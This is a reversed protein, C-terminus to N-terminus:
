NVMMKRIIKLESVIEDNGSFMKILGDVYERPSHEIAGPLWRFLKQLLGDPPLDLSKGVDMGATEKDGHRYIITVIDRPNIVRLNDLGFEGHLKGFLEAWLYNGTPPPAWSFCEIGHIKYEDTIRAGLAPAIGAGASHGNIRISRYDRWNLKGDLDDFIKDTSAGFGVSIGDPRAATQFNRRWADRKSKRDTGDTGRVSIDLDDGIRCVAWCDTGNMELDIKASPFFQKVKDSYRCEDYIVGAHLISRVLSNM